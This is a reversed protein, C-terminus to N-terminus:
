PTIAFPRQEEKLTAANIVEFTRNKM